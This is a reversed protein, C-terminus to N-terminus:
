SATTSAGCDLVISVFVDLINLRFVLLSIPDICKLDFLVEDRIEHFSCLKNLSQRQVLMELPLFLKQDTQINLFWTIGIWLLTSGLLSLCFNLAMTTCAEASLRIGWFWQSNVHRLLFSTHAFALGGFYCVFAM